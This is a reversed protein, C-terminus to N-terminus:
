FSYSLGPKTNNEGHRFLIEALRNFAKKIIFSCYGLAFINAENRPRVPLFVIMCHLYFRSCFALIHDNRFWLFHNLMWLNKKTQVATRLIKM